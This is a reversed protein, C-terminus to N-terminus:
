KTSNYSLDLSRLCNFRQIQSLLEHIDHGNLNTASLDLSKLGHMGKISGALPQICDKTLKMQSICLTKLKVFNIASKEMQVFAKALDLNHGVLIPAKIRFTKLKEAADSAFFNNALSEIASSGLENHMLSFSSLGGSDCAGMARFISAVNRDSLKNAMLTLRQLRDPILSHLAEGFSEANSANMQYNLLLMEGKESIRNLIPLPQEGKAISNAVYENVTDSSIM